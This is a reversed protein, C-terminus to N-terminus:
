QSINGEAKCRMKLIIVHRTFITTSTPFVGYTGDLKKKKKRKKKKAMGAAPRLEQALQNFGRWLQLWLWLLSLVPDKVQQAM